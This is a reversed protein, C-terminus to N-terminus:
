SFFTSFFFHRADHGEESIPNAIGTSLVSSGLMVVSGTWETRSKGPSLVPSQSKRGHKGTVFGVQHISEDEWPILGTAM